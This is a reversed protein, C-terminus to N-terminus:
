KNMEKFVNIHDERPVELPSLTEKISMNSRFGIEIKMNRLINLTDSNYSGCPHSMSTIPKKIIKKLHEYNRKYEMEQDSKKLKSLQTPHSYSHLGIIHGKNSINVLDQETMWLKKKAIAIDFGKRLMLSSMIEQYEVKTLYQDRLYRFWKDNQSYFPFEFLYNLSSFQLLRKSYANVNKEKVLKFFDSYFMELNPYSSTRFYRYVELLDTKDNFVSSYVFFFAGIGLKNIIPVAIDYQCKLADDFSLCIDNYVLTKNKLKSQYECADLINYNKNLWSIIDILNSASLSGQSPLHKENHFHHFMVSHTRKHIM